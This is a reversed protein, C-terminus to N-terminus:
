DEPVRRVLALYLPGRGAAADPLVQWGYRAPEGYPLNVEQLEFRGPRKRHLKELVGDNEGPSLACTCYLVPGGPRVAELASALMAFAQIALHHTRAPTWDALHSPSTYVHRESSCPVDLLIRDYAAQEHQAWRAADHGTVKVQELLGAPLHEELVRRLRARRRSSRENATLRIRPAASLLALSKGGPAACMDLVEEGDEPALTLAAHYSAEDLYYAQKLPAEISAYAPERSLAARLAPWREGYLGAYFEDFGAPGGKKRGGSM